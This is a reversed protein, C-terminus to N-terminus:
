LLSFRFAPLLLNSKNLKIERPNSPMVDNLLKGILNTKKMPMMINKKRKQTNKIGQNKLQNVSIFYPEPQADVNMIM